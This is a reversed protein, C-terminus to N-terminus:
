PNVRDGLGNFVQGRKLNRVLCGSVRTFLSDAELAPDAESAAEESGEEASDEANGEEAATKMETLLDKMPDSGGLASLDPMPPLGSGNFAAGGLGGGMNAGPEEHLEGEKAEASSPVRKDELGSSSGAGGGDGGSGSRPVYSGGSSAVPAPPPANNKSIDSPDLASAGQPVPGGSADAAPDTPKPSSPAAGINKSAGEAGFSSVQAAPNEGNPTPSTAAAEGSSTDPKKLMPALGMGVSALGVLSNLNFNDMLSAPKKPDDATHTEGSTINGSGKIRDNLTQIDGTLSSIQAQNKNKEDLIQKLFATGNTAAFSRSCNADACNAAPLARQSITSIGNLDNANLARVYQNKETPNTSTRVPGNLIRLKLDNYSSDLEKQYNENNAKWAQLIERQSGYLSQQDSSGKLTEIVNSKKLMESCVLSRKANLDTKKKIINNLLESCSAPDASKCGATINPPTLSFTFPDSKSCDLGGDAALAPLSFIFAASLM